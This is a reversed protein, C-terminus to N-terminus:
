VGFKPSVGNGSVSVGNIMCMDVGGTPTTTIPDLIDVVILTPSPANTARVSFLVQSDSTAAINDPACIIYGGPAASSDVEIWAGSAWPALASASVLTVVSLPDRLSTKVKVIPTTYAVGTLGRQDTQNIDTLLVYVYNNTSNRAFSPM